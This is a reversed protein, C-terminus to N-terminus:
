PTRLWEVARTFQAKEGAIVEDPALVDGYVTGGRDAMRATTLNLVGGDGIIFSSNATSLGCTPQGFSRTAPRGRFAIAVAEGSSAVLGDLLVAVRPLGASFTHREDIRSIANGEIGAAGNAMTWDLRTGGPEVFTGVSEDGFLPSLGALMPWMNGGGNGRLDVVIGALNDDDAAALADSIAHWYTLATPGGGSFAGVRVYGIDDPVAPPLVADAACTRTRFTATIGNPARYSSHGDGLHELAVQMASVVQTWSVADEVLGLVEAGIAPWDRELRVLSRNEMVRLVSDTHLVFASPPATPDGVCASGLLAAAVLALAPLRRLSRHV